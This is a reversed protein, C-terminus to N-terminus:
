ENLEEELRKIHDGLFQVIKDNSVSKLQEGCQTCRFTSEMAEEFTVRVNACKPCVFFEHALEFDYRAKLKECTRRKRNRIFADLQDPQLKWYFIYWGTKEDQVRKASVLAHDYLKYLIKRITNLRIKSENAISEDTAEGLKMLTRVVILAEQEGFFPAIKLFEEDLISL